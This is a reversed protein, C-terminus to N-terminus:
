NNQLTTIKFVLRYNTNFITAHPRLSQQVERRAQSDRAVLHLPNGQVVPHRLLDPGVQYCRSSLACQDLHGVLYSCRRM